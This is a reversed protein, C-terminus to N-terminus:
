PKLKFNRSQDGAVVTHSLGSEDPEGYREPITMHTADPAANSAGSGGQPNAPRMSPPMPLSRIAVKAQGLAADAVLYDGNWVTGSAMGGDPGVFAISGFPLPQGAFTVKGSIKGVDARGCGIAAIGLWAFVCATLQWGTIRKM